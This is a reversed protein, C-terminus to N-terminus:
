FFRLGVVGTVILAIFFLRAATKPEKYIWMGFLVSGVAGIGTWVAYGTSLPLEKLAVSLLYFSLGGFVIAFITPKLRSLGESAKLALIGGIEAFGAILLIIWAM